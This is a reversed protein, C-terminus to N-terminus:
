INFRSETVDNMALGEVLIVEFEKIGLFGFVMKLYEEQNTFGQEKYKGGRSIVFVAKNAKLMGQPGTETYKFTVGARCIADIYMKLQTPIAFNYMPAGIIIQDASLAEAILEDHVKVNAVHATDGGLGRLMDNDLLPVPNQAVDRVIVEHGQAQNEAIIEDIKKNSISNSGTIASKIVLIKM